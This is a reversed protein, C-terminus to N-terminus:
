EGCDGDQDRQNGIPTYLEKVAKIKVLLIKLIGKARHISLFKITFVGTSISSAASRSPQELIPARQRIARGKISGPMIATMRKTKM